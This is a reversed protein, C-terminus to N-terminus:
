TRQKSHHRPGYQLMALFRAANAVLITRKDEPDMGEFEAYSLPRRIMSPGFVEPFGCVMCLSVSGPEPRKDGEVPTIADYPENCHPCRALAVRTIPDDM